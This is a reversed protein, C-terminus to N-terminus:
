QSSGSPTTGTTKREKSSPSPKPPLSREKTWLRYAPHHPPQPPTAWLLICGARGVSHPESCRVTIASLGPLVEPVTSSGNFRWHILIGCDSPAWGPSLTVSWSQVIGEVPRRASM